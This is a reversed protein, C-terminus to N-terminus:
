RSADTGYRLFSFKVKSPSFAASVDISRSRFKWSRRSVSFNASPRLSATM